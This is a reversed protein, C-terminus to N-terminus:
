EYVKYYLKWSRLRYTHGNGMCIYLPEGPEHKPIAVTYTKASKTTTFRQVDELSAGTEPDVARSISFPGECMSFIEVDMKYLVGSNGPVKVWAYGNASGCVWTDNQYSWNANYNNFLVEQLCYAGGISTTYKAIGNTAWIEYVIDGEKMEVIQQKKSGGSVKTQTTLSVRDVSLNASTYSHAPHQQSESYSSTQFNVSIVVTPWEIVNLGSTMARHVDLARNKVATAVNGEADEVIISVDEYNQPIVPIYYDGAQYYISGDPATLTRTKFSIESAGNDVRLLTPTGQEESWKAVVDGAFSKGDNSRFVVKKLDTLDYTIGDKELTKGNPELTFKVFGCVSKLDVESGQLTGIAVNNATVLANATKASYTAPITTSYESSEPDYSGSNFDGSYMVYKITSKSSINGSFEGNETESGMDLGFRHPINQSDIVLLNDGDNWLASMNGSVEFSAVFNASGTDEIYEEAPRIDCGTVTAVVIATLFIYRKRM